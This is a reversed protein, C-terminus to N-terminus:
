DALAWGAVTQAPLPINAHAGVSRKRMTLVTQQATRHRRQWTRIADTTHRLRRWLSRQQSGCARAPHARSPSGEELARLWMTLDNGDAAHVHSPNCRRRLQSKLTHACSGRDVIQPTARVFHAKPKSGGARVWASSRQMDHLRIKPMSSTRIRRSTSTMGKSQAPFLANNTPAVAVSAGAITQTKQSSGQMVACTQGGFPSTQHGHAEDCHTPPAQMVTASPVQGTGVVLNAGSVAAMPWGMM